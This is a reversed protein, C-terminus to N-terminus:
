RRRRNGFLLVVRLFSAVALCLAALYTIAAANLVKKTGALEEGDMIGEAQLTKLARSSANYEVPLTVLQFIVSAGFFIIGIDILFQFSFILGAILLWPAATSAFNTVPIIAMRLKIPFYEDAHQCAHGAEHAAVGIAAISTSDYTSDSLNIINNKPDYHDTLEGSVRGIAINHLGNDDLIRRCVQSATEGCRAYYKAYNNYTSKVKAQAIITFIFAPIVLFLYYKDIYFMPFYPM